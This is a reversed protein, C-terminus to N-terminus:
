LHWWFKDVTNQTIRSVSLHVFAFCWVMVDKASTIIIIVKTELLKM